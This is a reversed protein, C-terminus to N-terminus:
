SKEATGTEPVNRHAQAFNKSSFAQGEEILAHGTRVQEM